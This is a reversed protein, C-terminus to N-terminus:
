KKREVTAIIRDYSKAPLDGITAANFQTNIWKLFQPMDRENKKIADSINKAQDATIVAATEIRSEDDEGTELALTKLLAVKMAYSAAKGPAKDGMDLAHSELEIELRDDPKEVNIFMIKYWAQYRIIQKGNGTTGADIVESRLQTMTTIVGHKILSTRVKATVADHSVGRYNQVASDKQIYGIEKRVENLREYLNM